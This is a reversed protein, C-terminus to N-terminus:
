SQSRPPLGIEKRAQDFSRQSWERLDDIHKAQRERFEKDSAQWRCSAAFHLVGMANVGVLAGAIFWWIEM